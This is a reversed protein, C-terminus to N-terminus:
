CTAHDALYTAVMDDTAPITGGWTEVDDLDARYARNSCDWRGCAEVEARLAETCAGASVLVGSCEM